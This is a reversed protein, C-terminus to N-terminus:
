LRSQAIIDDLFRSPSLHKVKSKLLEEDILSDMIEKPNIHEVSEFITAHRTYLDLNLLGRNNTLLKKKLVISECTRLTAGDQGDQVLELIIKTSYCHRLVEDYSMYKNYIIGDRTQDDTNVNVVHFDAKYGMETFKDYIAHIEHLRGKAGGVFFIDSSPLGALNLFTVICQITFFGDMSIKIM